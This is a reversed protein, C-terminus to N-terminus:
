TVISSHVYQSAYELGALSYGQSKCYEVCTEVTMSDSSTSAGQFTRDSVSDNACGVYEWNSATMDTFYIKPTGIPTTPCTAPVADPGAGTVPNCGPLKTLNGTVEENVSPPLQCAQCEADSYLDSFVPCDELTGSDSTCVKIAEGLATVNWGNISDGHFGFGTRDGQAFVFPHKNPNWWRDAFDNTQYIVEFFISVLHVPHTDPCKGTNYDGIPYAMHSSHDATDNHIGDWCSPFYVQARLGDPCNYNPMYETQPHSGGSYDLCVFSVAQGPAAQADSGWRKFPDGAIFRIGAPFPHIVDSSNQPDPRPLYYVTMGGTVGNGEGAQPVDVFQTYDENTWYLKPTWYASLDQKVPCSSCASERLQEYSTEFGFGSAGSVTHVHPSVVGPFVLPDIRELTLRGPCPMRWFASAPALLAAIVALATSIITCRQM